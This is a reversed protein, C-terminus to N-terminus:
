KEKFVKTLELLSKKIKENKVNNIQNQHKNKTVNNKFNKSVKTSIKQDEEFSTFKIKEVVTKGFFNNMRDMIEKKSYELDVEHGRKVMVLLTSVGFKNSNKFSKPYCVKFLTKGAILKWNNLTESYVQGRNNIVKKINKPLTDKLSRLGQITGWRQKTNNKYQM